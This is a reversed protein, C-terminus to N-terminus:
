SRFGCSWTQPPASRQLGRSHTCLRLETGGCGPGQITRFGQTSEAMASPADRNALESATLRLGFLPLAVLAAGAVTASIHVWRSPPLPRPYDPTVGAALLRDYLHPHVTRRSRLVAPVLNAEYLAGLARAYVGPARQHEVAVRDAREELRRSLRRVLWLVLLITLLLGLPALPGLAFAPRMAVLLAATGQGAVRAWVLRRPEGLHGLEHACVAELADDDLAHLARETVVLYGGPPFAAANATVHPVVAVHRPTVGARASARAVIHELRAGPAQALGVRRALAVGAGAAAAVMALMAALVVGAAAWGPRSPAAAAGLLLIPLGPYIVLWTVALSRAAQRWSPRPEGRVRDRVYLRTHWAAALTVVVSATVCGARGVVACLDDYTMACLGALLPLVWLWTLAAVRAPWGHRARETWHADAPLRRIARLMLWALGRTTAWTVLGALLAQALPPSFASWAPLGNADPCLGVPLTGLM